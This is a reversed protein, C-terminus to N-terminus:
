KALSCVTKAATEFDDVVRVNKFGAKNIMQKGLDVNNGVLRVVLPLTLNVAKVAEILGQAIIDCRMIGGFINVFLVKVNPDSQLIKFAETVQDEDAGGGVDLFNAPNGGHLKIIDMTAMALGAGNVLCGVNGDLGVFNLGAKEAAVERYDMTDKDESDFLEKQRYFANDDFSLKADVFVVSKNAPQDGVVALPNIEVQTADTEIFLEYLRRVQEAAVSNMEKSPCFGLYKAIQKADEMTMGKKVDIPHSKIADPNSEAVDEIDVGGMQSVVAVPGDFKRDMILALYLEKVIQAANVILVKKVLEGEATTQHTRLRYGIMQRAFERVEAATECIKVGGQLGSSLTGKGRGGALVQCKIVIKKAGLAQLKKAVQFAEEPTSAEAGPQVNLGFKELLDKSQYEHLSLERKTGGNSAGHMVNMSSAKFLRSSSITAPSSLATARAAAIRSSAATAMGRRATTALTSSLGRSVATSCSRQVLSFNAM